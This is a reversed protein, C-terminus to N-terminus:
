SNSWEFNKQQDSKSPDSFIAGLSNTFAEEVKLYVREGLYRSPATVHVAQMYPSRGVLQGLKRGPRDLLVPILTGVCTENFKRQTAFVLDQLMKLRESKIEEPVQNGLSAGPTGPRPSYKFSYAQVFGVEEILTLTAMFDQDTEGPFGVIFDSSLKIKSNASLLKEVIRIYNARTHRRNMKALITDSGSQVPLHVFPALKELQGHVRILDDTMDAPHSTTYRIIDLDEIKDLECLLDALSVELKGGSRWAGCYANVNQGLLTIERVGCAVLRRAESLVDEVPRSYEPGRTYPVVCFSCFKDCGEQITLFASFAETHIEPLSDFKPESPFAVDLINASKQKLGVKTLVRTVMKPLRHYTQPGFVIDVYPARRIVEEGEAQAVCGAVAIITKNGNKERDKKINEYRGLESYLKEAAKERIHCTNLIILEADDPSDAPGYGMPRLVDAMRRSDYVNM